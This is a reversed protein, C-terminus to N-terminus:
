TLDKQLILIACADSCITGMKPKSRNWDFWHLAAKDQLAILKKLM